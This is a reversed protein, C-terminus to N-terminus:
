DGPGPSTMRREIPRPDGRDPAAEPDAGLTPRQRIAARLEELESESERLRQEIDSLAPELEEIRTNDRTAPAPAHTPTPTPAPAPSTASTALPTMAPAIDQDAPTRPWLYRGALVGLACALVALVLIPLFTDPM